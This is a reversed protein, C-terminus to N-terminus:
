LCESVITLCPVPVQGFGPKLSLRLFKRAYAADNSVYKFIQFFPSLM